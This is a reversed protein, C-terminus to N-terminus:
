RQLHQLMAQEIDDESIFKPIVKPKLGLSKFGVRRNFLSVFNPVFRGVKLLVEELAKGADAALLNLKHM